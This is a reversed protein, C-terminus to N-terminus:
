LRALFQLDSLSHRQFHQRAWNRGYDLGGSRTQWLIFLKQWMNTEGPHEVEFSVRFCSDLSRAHFEKLGHDLLVKRGKSYKEDDISTYFFTFPLWLKM